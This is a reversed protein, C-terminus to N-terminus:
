AGFRGDPGPGRWERPRTATSRSARAGRRTTGTSRWRPSAPSATPSPTATPARCSRRPRDLRRRDLLVPPRVPGPARHRRGPLPAQRAHDVRLADRRRRAPQRQRGRWAAAPDARRRRDGHRPRARHRRGQGAAGGVARRRAPRAARGGGGRRGHGLLLRRLRPQLRRQPRVRRDDAAAAGAALVGVYVCDAPTGSLSWRGPAVEKARVPKHLTIAHSAASRPREPAVVLVDGLAALRDALAGLMPAAIGDDNTLLLLPRV